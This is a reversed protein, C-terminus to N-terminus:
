YPSFKQLYRVIVGVSYIFFALACILSLPNNETVAMGIFLIAAGAGLAIWVGFPEGIVLSMRKNLVIRGEDDFSIAGKQEMESLHRDVVRVCSQRRKFQGTEVLYEVIEDRSVPSHHTLFLTLRLRTLSTFAEEIKKWREIHEGSRM